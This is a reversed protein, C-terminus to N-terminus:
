GNGSDLAISTATFASNVGSFALCATLFLAVRGASASYVQAFVGSVLSGPYKVPVTDTFYGFPVILSTTTLTLTPVSAWILSGFVWSTLVGTPSDGSALAPISFKPSSGAPM